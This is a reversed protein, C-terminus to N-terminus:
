TKPMKSTKRTSAYQPLISNTCLDHKKERLPYISLREDRGDDTAVKCTTGLRNDIVSAVVQRWVRTVDITTPFLM